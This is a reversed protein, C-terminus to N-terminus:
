NELLPISLYVVFPCFNIKQHYFYEIDWKLNNNCPHSVQYM